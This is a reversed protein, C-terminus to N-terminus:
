SRLTSLPMSGHVMAISAQVPANQQARFNSSSPCGTFITLGCYTFGNTLPCFFSPCSASAIRVATRWGCIGSTGILVLSCCSMLANCRALYRRTFWRVAVIQWM